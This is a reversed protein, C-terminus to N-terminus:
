SPPIEEAKLVGRAILNRIVANHHTLEDSVDIVFTYPKWTNWRLQMRREEPDFIRTPEIDIGCYSFGLEDEDAAWDYSVGTEGDDRRSFVIGLREELIAVPEEITRYHTGFEM